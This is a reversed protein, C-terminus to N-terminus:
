QRSELGQHSCLVLDLSFTFARPGLETLKLFELATIPLCYGFAPTRLISGLPLTCDCVWSSPGTEVWVKVVM